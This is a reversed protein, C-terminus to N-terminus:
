PPVSDDDSNNAINGTTSRTGNAVALAEKAVKLDRKLADIKDGLIKFVGFLPCAESCSGWADKNPSTWCWGFSGYKGDDMICHEGEDRNDIGFLCSTGNLATKVTLASVREDFQTV